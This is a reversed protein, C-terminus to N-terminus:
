PLRQRKAPGTRRSSGAYRQTIKRRSLNSLPVGHPNFQFQSSTNRDRTQGIDRILIAVQNTERPVPVYRLTIRSPASYSKAVKGRAVGSQCAAGLLVSFYVVTRELLSSPVKGEGRGLIRVAGKTLSRGVGHGGM